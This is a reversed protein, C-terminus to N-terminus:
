YTSTEVNNKAFCFSSIVCKEVRAMIVVVNSGDKEKNRESV